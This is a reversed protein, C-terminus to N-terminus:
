QHDQMSLYSFPTNMNSFDEKTMFDYRCDITGTHFSKFLADIIEVSSMDYRLCIPAYLKMGNYNEIDMNIEDNVYGGFSIKKESPIQLVEVAPHVGVRYRTFRILTQNNKLLSKEQNMANVDSYLSFILGFILALNKM